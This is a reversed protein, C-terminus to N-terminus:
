QGVWGSVSRGPYTSDCRIFLPPGSSSSSSKYDLLDTKLLFFGCKQWQNFRRPVPLILPAIQRTTMLQCSQFCHVTTLFVPHSIPIKSLIPLLITNQRLYSKIWHMATYTNQLTCDFTVKKPHWIQCYMEYQKMVGSQLFLICSSMQHNIQWQNSKCWM